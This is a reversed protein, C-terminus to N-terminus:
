LKLALANNSILDLLKNIKVPMPTQKVDAVGVLLDGIPIGLIGCVSVLDDISHGSVGSERKALAPQSVELLKAMETQSIGALERERKINSAVIENITQEM